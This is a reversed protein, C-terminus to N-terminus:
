PTLLLKELRRLQPFDDVSYYGSDIMDLVRRLADIHHNMVAQKDVLDQGCTNCKPPPMDHTKM